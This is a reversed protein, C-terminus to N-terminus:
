GGIRLMLLALLGAAIALFGLAAYLYRPNHM